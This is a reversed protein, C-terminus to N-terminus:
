LKYRRGFRERATTRSTAISARQPLRLRRHHLWWELLILGGAVVVLAQWYERWTTSTSAETSVPTGGLNLDSRPTIDSEAPNFLNVAFSAEQLTTDGELVAVEYLGVAGTQGFRTVAGDPIRTQTSGDPMTLRLGDANLPVRLPVIQGSQIPLSNDVITLPRYWEMANAVFIPFAIQLPLDSEMLDFPLLIVRRGDREGALVIPEGRSTDVVISEAWDVGRMAQYARLQVGEVNLFASLPHEPAGIQWAVAGEIREGRQFLDSDTPPNIILLNADDPLTDPLYGDLVILDYGEHTISPRSVDGRFIQVGEVSLLAQEIFRNGRESLLLVRRSLADEAVTWAINDLALYDRTNADPRIEASAVTFARDISFNFSLQSRGGITQTRSEWLAGDLRVLLSFTAEETGYHHVQVFLGVAQGPLARSALATIALNDGHRGVPIYIPAQATSPLSALGDSFVGDSIIVVGFAETGQAGALALTFATEWDGAGESPNQNQLANRLADRSTSYGILIEASTGVRIISMEDEVSMQDILSHVHDLAVQWRSMGDAEDTANMSASADLLVVSRGASLTPVAQAPRSLAMVLLLLILLQLLMLPHRRLRQWPTNAEQDDLAQQWLFHSSVVVQRRRLRLMYLLIIPIALSIGLLALPALLTM